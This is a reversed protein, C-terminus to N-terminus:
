SASHSTCRPSPRHLLFACSTRPCSLYATLSPPIPPRLRSSTTARATWTYRGGAATVARPIIAIAAASSRTAAQRTHAGGGAEGEAAGTGSHSAHPPTRAGQSGARGAAPRSVPGVASVVSRSLVSRIFHVPRWHFVFLICLVLLGGTRCRVDNSSVSLQSGAQWAECRHPVAFAATLHNVTPHYCWLVHVGNTRASEGVSLREDAPSGAREGMSVFTLVCHVCM